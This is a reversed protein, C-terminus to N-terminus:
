EAPSEGIPSESTSDEVPSEEVPSEEEEDDDDDDEDVKSPDILSYETFEVNTEVHCIAWIEGQYFAKESGPLNFNHNAPINEIVEVPAGDVFETALTIGYMGTRVTLQRRAKNEGILRKPTSKKLVKRKSKPMLALDKSEQEGRPYLSMFYDELVKLDTGFKAILFNAFGDADSEPEWSEVRVRWIAEVTDLRKLGLSHSSLGVPFYFVFLAAEEQNFIIRPNFINPKDEEGLFGPAVAARLKVARSPSFSSLRFIESNTPSTFLWKKQVEVIGLDRWSM